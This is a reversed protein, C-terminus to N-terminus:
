RTLALLFASSLERLRETSCPRQALARILSDGVSVNMPIALRRQLDESRACLEAVSISDRSEAAARVVEGAAGAAVWEPGALQALADDIREGADAARAASDGSALARYSSLLPSAGAVGDALAVIASATRRMGVSDATRVALQFDVLTAGLRAARVPASLDDGIGRRAPWADTVPATVSMPLSAVLVSASFGEDGRRSGRVIAFVLAAAALLGLASWGYMARPNRAPAPTAPNVVGLEGAIAAADAFSEIVGADSAALQTRLEAAETASLKGEMLAALREPDIPSPKSVFGRLDQTETSAVRM